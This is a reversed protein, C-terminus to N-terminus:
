NLGDATVVDWVEREGSDDWEQWAAAYDAEIQNARLLRVAEHVVASRSPSGHERAHEDLFAVDEAPLSVSVKM